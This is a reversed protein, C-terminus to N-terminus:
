LEAGDGRWEWGMPELTGAGHDNSKGNPTLGHLRRRRSRPRGCLLLGTGAGEMGEWGKGTHTRKGWGRAEWDWGRGAWRTQWGKHALGGLRRRRDGLPRRRSRRRGSLVLGIRATLGM